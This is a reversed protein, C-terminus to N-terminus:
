LLILDAFPKEGTLSVPVTSIPERGNRRFGELLSQRDDATACAEALSHIRGLENQAQDEIMQLTGVLKDRSGSPGLLLTRRVAEPIEWGVAGQGFREAGRRAVDQAFAIAEEALSNDDPLMAHVRRFLEHEGAIWDLQAERKRNHALIPGDGRHVMLGIPGDRKIVRLVEAAVAEPDGYEFGFQSVVADFTANEFPMADMSVGGILKMGDSSPPLPDAIDIGTGTVDARVGRLMEIVKGSGTAIDLVHAGEPLRECFEVWAEFQAKSIANWESSVVAPSKATRQREWFAKWVQEKASRDM